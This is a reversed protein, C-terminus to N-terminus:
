HMGFYDEEAKPATAPKAPRAPKAPSAGHYPVPSVEPLPPTGTYATVIIHVGNLETIGFAERLAEAVRMQLLSSFQPLRQGPGIKLRVWVALKGGRSKFRAHPRSVAGFDRATNEVLDALAAHSVHVNGGANAFIKMTRRRRRVVLCVLLIVLLTCIIISHKVFWADSLMERYTDVAEDGPTEAAAM